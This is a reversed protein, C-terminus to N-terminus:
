REENPLSPCEQYPFLRQAVSIYLSGVVSLSIISSRRAGATGRFRDGIVLLCLRILMPTQDVTIPNLNRIGMM